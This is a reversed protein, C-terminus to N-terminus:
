RSAVFDRLDDLSFVLAACYTEGYEKVEFKECPIDTKYEWTFDDSGFAVKIPASKEKNDLWSKIEEDTDLDDRSGLVGGPHVNVVDGDSVYIEEDIAGILLLLDDSYGCAIVLNNEQAKNKLEAPIVLPYESGDLQEALDKPQM